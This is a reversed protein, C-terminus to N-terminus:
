PPAVAALAALYAGRAQEPPSADLAAAGRAADGDGFAALAAIQDMVGDAFGLQRGAPSFPLRARLLLLRGTFSEIPPSRRHHAAREEQALNLSLQWGLIPTLSGFLDAEQALRCLEDDNAEEAASRAPDTALIVRRITALADKDLGAKAALAVTLGASRAELVGPPPVSGDHQLDHGAMALVGYAAEEMSLSGLNRAVACLWGMAITAEAQHHQNHYAPEGTAFSAAHGTVAGAIAQGAGMIERPLTEGCLVLGLAEAVAGCMDPPRLRRQIM